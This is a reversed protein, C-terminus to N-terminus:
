LFPLKNTGLRRALRVIAAMAKVLRCGTATAMPVKSAELGSAKVLVVTPVKRVRGWPKRWRSKATM